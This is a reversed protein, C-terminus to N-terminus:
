KTHVAPNIVPPQVICSCILVPGEIPVFVVFAVAMMKVSAGVPVGVREGVGIGDAITFEVWLLETGAPVETGVGAGVGSHVGVM